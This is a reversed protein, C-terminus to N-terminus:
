NKITLNLFSYGAGVKRVIRYFFASRKGKKLQCHHLLFCHRYIEFIGCGPISGGHRYESQHLKGIGHM